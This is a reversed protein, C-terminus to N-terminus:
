STVWTGLRRAQGTHTIVHTAILSQLALLGATFCLLKSSERRKIFSIHSMSIHTRCQLVSPLLLFDWHAKQHSGSPHSSMRHDSTSHTPPKQSFSSQGQFKDIINPRRTRSPAALVGAKCWTRLGFVTTPLTQPWLKTTKFASAPKWVPNVSQQNAENSHTIDAKLPSSTPFARPQIHGRFELM